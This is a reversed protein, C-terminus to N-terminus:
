FTFGLRLRITRSLQYYAPANYLSSLAASTGRGKFNNLQGQVDYPREAAAYFPNGDGIYCTGFFSPQTMCPANPATNLTIYQNPVALSTMDAYYATVARQNFLNSFTASFSIVKQEGLKYNQALNFDSQTYWPTRKTEPSGVTLFGTVPDRTETVYKGRDWAQVAWGGNGAGVDLYSTIPSGSYLYQFIGFDTTFKKMWSLEYYAYGKFTNPRDTPLLGSSSDGFANWQFYPEDFARSNNPSSRGGSQGDSIDSSTLGTYNGRLKSYTYSFMGFWHDSHTKTLRFEVGDYSRAAPIMAQLPCTVGSCAPPPPNAPQPYLFNYFSNFTKETGQGPNGVVFTESGAAPGTTAIISSDEIVHDLRRRDWRAEFALNKAIQYDVGFVSEHQEYPKLGPTVGTSTLECTSCTTPFTRFNQNEIFTLGAPQTGGPWVAGTSTSGVCYRGATDLAPAISAINATDLAYTCTNWFQGGFSSIAVNLKMIDFFKGYSGFVKMRGDKFVDWAAGIRPAVKDGWGFNIPNTTLGANSSAPLYEKDFRLGANITVGHGITWADQAFLGHNFSTVNGGTGFDFVAVTGYLGTCAGYLAVFPACNNVGFQSNPAYAGQAGPFIQVYPENYHQLINNQLRNLQYGFKFNHTGYWGSKFWALDADYQIAKNANQVTYTGSFADNAFGTTHQLSAPLPNGNLDTVGVGNNQWINLTGTTPYGFDHYNEFYYGFRTTFVLRPTLTVDAGFNATVNPATWGITHSFATAPTGSCPTALNTFGNCGSDANFLGDVSDAHPLNVGTQRQYQYLWSGFVRIKQTVSADVRATTYYTQTNQSFPLVGGNGPGWNVFREDDNWEPNFAVFGFIRDKLIPGGFTFGPFVDSTKDRRPQVHQSAPDLYGNTPNGPDGPNLFNGQPDYRSRANPGGDLGNDEFQMFVSGHYNNTGKKMVVNVVGGLAGGHEAEIGSSKVQVEQIFDFPVNTHSYGGILNATEQGEVLYSNEADSGGGVSFGHDSGNTTSGPANGGTGNSSTNNGELPENRASPAFQIVSQFSRGHPVDQIVDETINTLTRTTTVDIVPAEGSVEVVTESGGVELKLDLTPLHGVEITLGGRKLTKFGKAAATVTYDGPPINAFRYYGKADTAQSKSGILASGTVTVTAGSVVAGSPDTITGQLGGTTEQAVAASILLFVALPCMLLMTILRKFSM